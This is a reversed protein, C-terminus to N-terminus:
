LVHVVVLSCSFADSSSIPLCTHAHCPRCQTRYHIDINMISIRSISISISISFSSVFHLFCFCVPTDIYLCCGPMFSMGMGDWGM